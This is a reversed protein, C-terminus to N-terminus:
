CLLVAAAEYPALQVSGTKFDEATKGVTSLVVERVGGGPMGGWAVAETSFNCVVVVREGEASTREYAFVQDDDAAGLLEFGGYVFVDVLRKRAALVARWCHFVSNADATQAAANITSHNPHVRMWPTTSSSSFGANPTADWQMPTRANDRSKQRYQEHFVAIEEPSATDKVTRILRPNTLYM